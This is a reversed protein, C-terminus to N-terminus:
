IAKILHIIMEESAITIAETAHSKNYGPLPEMEKLYVTKLLLSQLFFIASYNCHRERKMNGRIVRSGRKDRVIIM